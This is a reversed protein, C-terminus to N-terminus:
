SFQDNEAAAKWGEHLPIEPKAKYWVAYMVAYRRIFAPAGLRVVGYTRYFSFLVNNIDKAEIMCFIYMSGISTASPM